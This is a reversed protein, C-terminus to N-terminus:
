GEKYRLYVILECPNASDYAAAAAAAATADQIRERFHDRQMHMPVVGQIYRGVNDNTEYSALFGARYIFVNPTSLLFFHSNYLSYFYAWSFACGCVCM